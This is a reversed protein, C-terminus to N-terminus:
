IAENDGIVLHLSFTIFMGLDIRKADNKKIIRRHDVTALSPSKAREVATTGSL